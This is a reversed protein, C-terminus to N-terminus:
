SSSIMNKVVDLISALHRDQKNKLSSFMPYSIFIVFHPVTFKFATSFKSRRILQSNKAFLWCICVTSGEEVLSHCLYDLAWVGVLMLVSFFAIYNTTRWDFRKINKIFVKKMILYSKDSFSIHCVDLYGFETNLTICIIM